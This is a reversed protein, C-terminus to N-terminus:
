IFTENLPLNTVMKLNQRAYQQVKCSLVSDTKLIVTTYINDPADSSTPCPPCTGVWKKAHGNNFLSTQRGVKQKWPFLKQDQGGVKFFSGVGRNVAIITRIDGLTRAM